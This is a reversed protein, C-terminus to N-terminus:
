EIKAPVPTDVAMDKFICKMLGPDRGQQIVIVNNHMNVHSLVVFVQVQCLFIVNVQLLAHWRKRYQIRQALHEIGRAIKLARPHHAFVIYDLEQVLPLRRSGAIRRGSLRKM